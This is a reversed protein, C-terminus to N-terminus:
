PKPKRESAHGAEVIRRSLTTTPDLYLHGLVRGLSTTQLIAAPDKAAPIWLMAQPHKEAIAATFEKGRQGQPTHKEPGWCDLLRVSLRLEVVVVVTDVDVAREITCPLVLGAPPCPAPAASQLFLALCLLAHLM